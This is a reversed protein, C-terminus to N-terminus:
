ADTADADVSGDGGREQSGQRRGPQLGAQVRGRLQLGAHVGGECLPTALDLPGAIVRGLGLPAVQSDIRVVPQDGAAQFGVPLLRQLCQGVGLSFKAPALGLPGPDKGRLLFGRDEREALIDCVDPM